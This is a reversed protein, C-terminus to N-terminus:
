KRSMQRAICNFIIKFIHVHKDDKLFNQTDTAYKYAESKQSLRHVQKQVSWKTM